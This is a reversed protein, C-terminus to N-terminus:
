NWRACYELMLEDEGLLIQYVDCRDYYMSDYVMIFIRDSTVVGIKFPMDLTYNQSLEEPLIVTRWSEGDFLMMSHQDGEQHNESGLTTEIICNPLVIFSQSNKLQADALHVEEGTELNIDYYGENSRFQRLVNGSLYDGETAYDKAGTAEMGGNEIRYFDTGLFRNKVTLDGYLRYLEAWELNENVDYQDPYTEEFPVSASGDIINYSYSRGTFSGDANLKEFNCLWHSGLIVSVLSGGNAIVADEMQQELRLDSGDLARSFLATQNGEDLAFEPFRCIDETFYIRSNHILFTGWGIYGRCNWSIATHNCIPKNCVPVWLEIGAKDAYMLTKVYSYYIGDKTEAWRNFGTAEARGCYWPEVKLKEYEMQGYTLAPMTEWRLSETIAPDEPQAQCGPLLLLVAALLSAIWRVTRKM